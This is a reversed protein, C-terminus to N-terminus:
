AQDAAPPQPAPDERQSQGQPPLANPRRLNTATYIHCFFGGGKAEHKVVYRVPGGDWLSFVARIEGPLQYDGTFKEVQEGVDFLSDFLDGTKQPQTM